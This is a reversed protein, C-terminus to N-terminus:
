CSKLEDSSLNKAVMKEITQLLGEKKLLLDSIKSERLELKRQLMDDDYVWCEEPDNSASSDSNVDIPLYSGSVDGTVNLDAPLPEADSDAAGYTVESKAM